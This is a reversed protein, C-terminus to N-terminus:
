IAMNQICVRCAPAMCENPVSWIRAYSLVSLDDQEM